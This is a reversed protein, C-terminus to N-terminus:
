KTLLEWDILDPLKDCEDINLIEKLSMTNNLIHNCARTLVDKKEEYTINEENILAAYEDFVYKLIDSSKFLQNNNVARSIKECTKKFSLDLFMGTYTDPESTDPLLYLRQLRRWDNYIIDTIKQTVEEIEIIEQEMEEPLLEM